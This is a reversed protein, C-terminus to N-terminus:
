GQHQMNCKCTTGSCIAPAVDLAQMHLSVLNVHATYAAYECTSASMTHEFRKPWPRYTPGTVRNWAGLLARPPPTALLAAASHHRSAPALCLRPEADELAVQIGTQKNPIRPTQRMAHFIGQITLPAAQKSWPCPFRSVSLCYAVLRCLRWNGMAKGSLTNRLPAASAVQQHSCTWECALKPRSSRLRRQRSGVLWTSGATHDPNGHRSLNALSSSTPSPIHSFAIDPNQFSYLLPCAALLRPTFPHFCRPCSRRHRSGYHHIIIDALSSQYSIPLIPSASAAFCFLFGAMALFVLCRFDFMVCRSMMAQTARRLLDQPGSGITSHVDGTPGSM